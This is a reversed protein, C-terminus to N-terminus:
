VRISDLIEEILDVVYDESSDDFSNGLIIYNSNNIQFSAMIYKTTEDSDKYKLYVEQIQLEDFKQSNSKQITRRDIIEAGIKQFGELFLNSSSDLDAQSDKHHIVDISAIPDQTFTCGSFLYVWTFVDLDDSDTVCWGQRSPLDFSIEGVQFGKDNDSNDDLNNSQIPSSKEDSITESECKEGLCIREYYYYDTVNLLVQIDGFKEVIDTGKNNAAKIIGEDFYWDQIIELVFEDNVAMEAYVSADTIGDKYIGLDDYYVSEIFQVEKSRFHNLEWTGTDYMTKECHFGLQTLNCKSGTFEEVIGMYFETDEFITTPTITPELTPPVDPEAVQGSGCSVFILLISVVIFYDRILRKNINM